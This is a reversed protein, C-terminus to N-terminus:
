SIPFFFPSASVPPTFQMELNPSPATVVSAVASSPLFCFRKCPPPAADAAPASDVFAVDSDSMDSSSADELVASLSRKNKSRRKHLDEESQHYTCVSDSVVVNSEFNSFSASSFAPSNSSSFAPLSPQAQHSGSISSLLTELEAASFLVRNSSRLSGLVCNLADNFGAAYAM